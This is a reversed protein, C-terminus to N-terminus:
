PTPDGAPRGSDVPPVLPAGIRNYHDVHARDLLATVEPDNMSTVAVAEEGWFWTEYGPEAEAIEGHCAPDYIVRRVSGVGLQAAKTLVGETWSDIRGQACYAKALDLMWLGLKAENTISQAEEGVEKAQRVLVGAGALLARLGDNETEVADRDQACLEAYDQWSQGPGHNYGEARRWILRHLVLRANDTPALAIDAAECIDRRTWEALKAVILARSEDASIGVGLALTLVEAARAHHTHTVAPDAAIAAATTHAESATM